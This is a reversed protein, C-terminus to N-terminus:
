SKRSRDSGEFSVALDGPETSFDISLGISSLVVLYERIVVVRAGCMAGEATWFVIPESM